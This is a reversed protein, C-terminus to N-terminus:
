DSLGLPPGGSMPSRTAVSRTAPPVVLTDGQHSAATLATGGDRVFGLSTAIVVVSSGLLPAFPVALTPLTSWFSSTTVMGDRVDVARLLESLSPHLSSTVGGLTTWIVGGPEPHETWNPVFRVDAAGSDAWRRYRITKSM